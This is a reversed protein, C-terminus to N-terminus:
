TSTPPLPGYPRPGYSRRLWERRARDLEVTLRSRTYTETEGASRINISKLPYLRSLWLLRVAEEIISPPVTDPDSEFKIAVTVDSVKPASKYVTVDRISLDHGRLAAGVEDLAAQQRKEGGESGGDVMDEYIFLLYILLLTGVVLLAAHWTTGLCCALLAAVTLIKWAPKPFLRQRWNTPAPLLASSFVFRDFVRDLPGRRAPRPPDTLDAFLPATEAISAAAYATRLRSEYEPLDLRGEDLARKLRRAVDDREAQSLRRATGHLDATLHALDAATGAEQARVIRSAHETGDLRGDRQAAALEAAADHRQQDSARADLDALLVNLDRLRRAQNIDAELGPHEIQTVRGDVVAETLRAQATERDATGALLDNDDAGPWGPLGRLLSRLQAYTGVGPLAASRREFEATTLRGQASGEALWHVARERDDGRVRAPDFWWHEGRRDPLDATLAVLEGRTKAAQVADVRRAHEVNDLRGEDRAIDLIRVVAARDDNTARLGHQGGDSWGLNM